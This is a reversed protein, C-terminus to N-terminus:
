PRSAEILKSLQGACESYVNSERRLCIAESEDTELIADHMKWNSQARWGFVLARARHVAAAQEKTPPAEEPAAQDSM